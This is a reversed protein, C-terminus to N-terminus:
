NLEWRRAMIIFSMTWNDAASKHGKRPIQPKKSVLFVYREFRKVRRGFLARACKCIMLM